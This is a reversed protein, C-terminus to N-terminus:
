GSSVVLLGAYVNELDLVMDGELRRDRNYKRQDAFRAEDMYIPDAEADMM